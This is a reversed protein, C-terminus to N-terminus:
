TFKVETTTKQTIEIKVLRFQYDPWAQSIQKLFSLSTSLAYSGYEGIEQWCEGVATFSRYPELRVSFDPGKCFFDFNSYAWEGIKLLHQIRYLTYTGDKRLM